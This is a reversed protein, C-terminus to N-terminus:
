DLSRLSVMRIRHSTSTATTAAAHPPDLGIIVPPPPPPPPLRGGGAAETVIDSYLNEGSVTRTARPLTTPHLLPPVVLWVDVLSVAPIQFLLAISGGPGGGGVQGYGGQSPVGAPLKRNVNLL